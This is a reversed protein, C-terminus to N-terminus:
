FKDASAEEQQVPQAVEVAGAAVSKYFEKAKAYLEADEVPGVVDVTIGWWAGKANEEKASKLRYIHSFSPPTFPNGQTDRMEIGQIRSIWQKSKKIQTSSLSILAASWRGAANKFLVFHNRTDSLHDFLPLGKSDFPRAGEPVDMLYSNDHKSLGPVNNTEVDAPNFEGKYGGGSSRPAWRVYRRQFSCPVVLVENMLENTITNIFLGPKAGEVTEVQPSLGQLMTVFPIAFSSKDAGEIGAGADSSFDLVSGLATTPAEVIARAAPRADKTTARTKM